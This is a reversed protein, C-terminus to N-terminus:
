NFVPPPVMIITRTVNGIEESRSAAVSLSFNRSVAGM